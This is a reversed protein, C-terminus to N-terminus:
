FEFARDFDRYIITRMGPAMLPTTADKALYRYPLEVQM